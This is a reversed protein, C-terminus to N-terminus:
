IGYDPNPSLQCFTRSGPLSAATASSGCRDSVCRVAGPRPALIKFESGPFKGLKGLNALDAQFCLGFSTALMDRSVKRWPRPVKGMAIPQHFRLRAEADPQANPNQTARILPMAPERRQLSMEDRDDVLFVLRRFFDRRPIYRRSLILWTPNSLAWNGRPPITMLPERCGAPNAQETRDAVEGVLASVPEVLPWPTLLDGVMRPLSHTVAAVAVPALAPMEDRATGHFQRAAQGSRLAVASRPTRGTRRAPFGPWCVVPATV